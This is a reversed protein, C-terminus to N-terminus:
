LLQLDELLDDIYSSKCFSFTLYVNFSMSTENANLDNLFSREADNLFFGSEMKDESKSSTNLDKNIRSSSLSYGKIKLWSVSNLINFGLDM